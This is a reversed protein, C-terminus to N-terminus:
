DAVWSHILACGLYSVRLILYEQSVSAANSAARGLPRRITFLFGARGPEFHCCVKSIGTPGPFSFTAETCITVRYVVRDAAPRIPCSPPQEVHHTRHMPVYPPARSPQHANLCFQLKRWLGGRTCIIFARCARSIPCIARGYFDPRNLPSAWQSMRRFAASLFCTDGPLLILQWGSLCGGDGPSRSLHGTSAPRDESLM